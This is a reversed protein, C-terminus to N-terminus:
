LSANNVERAQAIDRTIQEQLLERSNFKQEARLKQQFFVELEVGYLDADFDLLHVECRLQPKAPEITPRTGINVVAKQTQAGIRARASYVGRPPVAKGSIELNATPFGLTRGIQEGAVVKGCLAYNRGLMGNATTFDGAQIAERIRTSSVVSGGRSVSPLGHALFGLEPGLRRLLDVNGGRQHGFYFNEGVCISQIPGLDGRLKRVFQEGSLESFPKDFDILLVSDAGLAEIARL